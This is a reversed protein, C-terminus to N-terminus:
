ETVTRYTGDKIVAIYTSRNAEGFRDLTITQQAGQFTAINLITEKLSKGPQRKEFAQLAVQAADYAAMGAFGPKQGFRRIYASRFARYRPSNDSRNLLQSMHVGEVASGGLEVLRETAAWESLVIPVSRSLKRVQQCLMAADVANAIILIVDARAALLESAKSFFSNVEGSQFPITRVMRGGSREFALRFDDLWSQSYARNGVDYIAAVSRRGLRHQYVASKEAYGATTSIVRLFNDDKAALEKTTVTPSIMITRSANVIPVMAMAASSTMPGIIVELGSSVLESAVKRAVEANQQDDRVVLEVQRGNIGGVANREEVALIAGNRGAVGLDSAKGTIGAVFGIRLPKGDSCATCLISLLSLMLLLGRKM